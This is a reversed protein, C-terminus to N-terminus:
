RHANTHPLCLPPQPLALLTTAPLTGPGPLLILDSDGCGLSSIALWQLTQECINEPLRLSENKLFVPSNTHVFSFFAFTGQLLFVFYLQWQNRSPYLCVIQPEEPLRLMLVWCSEGQAVTICSESPEEGEWFLPLCFLTDLSHSWTYSQVTVWRPWMIIPPLTIHNM